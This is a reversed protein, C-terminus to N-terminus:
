PSGLFINNITIHKTIKIYDTVETDASRVFSFKKMLEILAIKAEM